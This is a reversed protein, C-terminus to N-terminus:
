RDMDRIIIRLLPIRSHHGDERHINATEEPGIQAAMTERCSQALLSDADAHTGIPSVDAAHLAARLVYREQSQVFHRLCEPDFWSGEQICTWL